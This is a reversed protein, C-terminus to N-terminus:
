DRGYLMHWYKDVIASALVTAELLQQHRSFQDPSLGADMVERIANFSQEFGARLSDSYVGNEDANLKEQMDCLTFHGELADPEFNM